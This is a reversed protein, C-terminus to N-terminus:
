LIGGQSRPKLRPVKYCETFGSDKFKVRYWLHATNVGVVTCEKPTEISSNVSSSTKFITPIERRVDGVKPLLIRAAKKSILL